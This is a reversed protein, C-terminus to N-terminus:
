NNSNFLFLKKLLLCTKLSDLSSSKFIAAVSSHDDSGTQQYSLDECFYTWKYALNTHFSFVRVLKTFATACKGHSSTSKHPSQHGGLRINFFFWNPRFLVCWLKLSWIICIRLHQTIFFQNPHHKFLISKVAWGPKLDLLFFVSWSTVEKVFYRLTDDSLVFKRPHSRADEKGRKM